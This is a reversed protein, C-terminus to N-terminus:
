PYVSPNHDHGHCSLYCQGSFTGTSEYRLLGSSNPSVVSTDFNILHANNTANGQTASIGHPDHCVNCPANDGQVHTSHMPFSQDGLISARSHCKYCLAYTTSDEITGDATEYRRELLYPWNSGHPGAPGTGGAGPGTDSAHCDTCYIISSTTLPAILSPVNLNAGPAEVPHSSPNSPDFELRTNTQLIQRPTPATGSASDGHCRFCLEYQQTLPQVVLGAASVGTVGKLAGSASPATASTDTAQHPNHCDVCEVHRPANIPDETPDHVGVTQEIPHHYTKQFDSAVDKTAVHGDHCVTCNDEEVSSHLLRAGAGANHPEHCNECGNAAVTVETSNPWPDPAVGDWTASSTAHLTSAWGTPAHCTVCMASATNDMRLFQGNKNDHPDHCTTCQILGNHDLPLDVTAQSEPAFEGAVPYPISVPHDNSLDSGLASAGSTLYDLGAPFSIPTPPTLVEGLAVTGDHCSLCLKSSGTPQGPATQITSSTYTIYTTTSAGHNWLVGVDKAAGHPTHCFICVKNETLSKYPGPGSTSLNHKSDVISLAWAHAPLFVLVLLLSMVTKM